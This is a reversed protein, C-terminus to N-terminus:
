RGGISVEVGLGVQLNYVYKSVYGLASRIKLMLTEKNGVTFIHM